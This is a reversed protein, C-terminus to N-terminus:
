HFVVDTTLEYDLLPFFLILINAHFTSKCAAELAPLSLNADVMLVPASPLANRFHLIWDPTLYKEQLM